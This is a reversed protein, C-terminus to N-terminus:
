NCYPLSRFGTGHQGGEGNTNESNEETLDTAERGMTAIWSNNADSVGPLLAASQTTLQPLLTANLNDIITVKGTPGATLAANGILNDISPLTEGNVAVIEGAKLIVSGIQSTVSVNNRASGVTLNDTVSGSAGAFLTVTDYGRVNSNVTLPSHATVTVAGGTSTVPGNLTLAGQNDLSVSGDNLIGNVTLVGRNKLRVANNTNTIQLQGVETQFPSSVGIGDQASLQASGAIISSIGNLGSIAGGSDGTGATIIVDGSGANIPSNFGVNQASSISVAGNRTTIGGVTLGGATETVGFGGGAASNSGSVTSGGPMSSTYIISGSTSNNLTVMSVSNAGDLTIGTGANVTL